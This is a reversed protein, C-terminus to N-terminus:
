YIKVTEPIPINFSFHLLSKLNEHVLKAQVHPVSEQNNEM